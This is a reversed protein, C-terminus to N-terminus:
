QVPFFFVHFIFILFSSSGSLFFYLIETEFRPLRRLLHVVCFLLSARERWWRGAVTLWRWGSEQKEMGIEGGGNRRIIEEAGSWQRWRITEVVEGEAEVERHHTLISVSKESNNARDTENIPYLNHFKLNLTPILSTRILWNGEEEISRLTQTKILIKPNM